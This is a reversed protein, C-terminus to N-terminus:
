ILILSFYIEAIKLTQWFLAEPVHPIQELSILPVGEILFYEASKILHTIFM